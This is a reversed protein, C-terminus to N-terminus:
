PQDYAPFSAIHTPIPDGNVNTAPEGPQWMALCDPSARCEVRPIDESSSGTDTTDTTVTTAADTPEADTPEPAAPRCAALTAATALLFRM